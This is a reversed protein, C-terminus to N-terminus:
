ENIWSPAIIDQSTKTINMTTTIFSYEQGDFGLAKISMNLGLIQNNNDFTLILDASGENKNQQLYEGEGFLGEAGLGLEASKAMVYDVYRPMSIDMTLTYGNDNNTKVVEDEYITDWADDIFLLDIYVCDFSQLIVGFYSSDFTETEIQSNYRSYAYEGNYYEDFVNGENLLYKTWNEGTREVLGSITTGYGFNGQIQIEAKNLKVFINRNGENVNALLVKATQSNNMALSNVVIDKAENLTLVDTNKKGGCGLLLFSFSFIAVLMAVISFSIKKAKMITEKNSYYCKKNGM